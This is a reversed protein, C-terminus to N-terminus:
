LTCFKNVRRYFTIRRTHKYLEGEGNRCMKVSFYHNHVLHKRYAIHTKLFFTYSFHTGKCGFLVSRNKINRVIHVSDTVEAVSAYNKVVAFNNKVTINFLAYFDIESTCVFIETSKFIDPILMLMIGVSVVKTQFKYSIVAFLIINEIFVLLNLKFKHPFVLSIYFVKTQTNFHAIVSSIRNGCKHNFIEIRPFLAFGM